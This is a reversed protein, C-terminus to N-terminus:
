EVENHFACAEFTNTQIRYLGCFTTIYTKRHREDVYQLNGYVYLFFTDNTMMKIDEANIPAKSPLLMTKSISQGSPIFARAPDDTAPIDPLDGERRFRRNAPFVTTQNVLDAGPLQGVNEFVFELTPVHDPTLNDLHMSKLWVRPRESPDPDRLDYQWILCGTLSVVGIAMCALKVSRNLWHLHVAILFAIVTTFTGWILWRDMHYYM